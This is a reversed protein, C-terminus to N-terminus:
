IHTWIPRVEAGVVTALQTIQDPSLERINPNRAALSYRAFGQPWSYALDNLSTTTGCCPLVVELSPPQHQLAADVADGWWDTSLEAHCAPCSVSEFNSGAHFFQVRDSVESSVEDAAPVMSRLLKDAAVRASEVPVYEPSVPILTLINDSM